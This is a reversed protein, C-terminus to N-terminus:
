YPFLLLAGLILAGLLLQLTIQPADASTISIDPEILYPFQAFAWGLLILTVQSAACVRAARYRRTWLTYFTGTASPATLVHLALAGWSHSIGARVTPAGAGALVFVILALLGVVVGAALTTFVIIRM